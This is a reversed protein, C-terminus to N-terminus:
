RESAAEAVPLDRLARQLVDGLWDPDSLLAAARLAMGAANRENTTRTREMFLKLGLETVEDLSITLQRM